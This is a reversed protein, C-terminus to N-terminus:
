RLASTVLTCAGAKKTAASGRDTWSHTKPAINMLHM